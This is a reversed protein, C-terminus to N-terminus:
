KIFIHIKMLLILEKLIKGKGKVSEKERIAIMVFCKVKYFVIVQGEM